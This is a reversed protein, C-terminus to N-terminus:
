CLRSIIISAPQRSTFREKRIKFSDEFFGCLNFDTSLSIIDFANISLPTVYEQKETEVRQVSHNTV